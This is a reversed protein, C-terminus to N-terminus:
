EAADVPDAIFDADGAEGGDIAGADGFAGLAAGGGDDRPEAVVLPSACGVVVLCALAARLGLARLRLARVATSTM